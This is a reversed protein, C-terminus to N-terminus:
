HNEKEHSEALRIAADIRDLKTRAEAIVSDNFAIAVQEITAAVFPRAEKLAAM